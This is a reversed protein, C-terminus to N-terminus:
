ATPGVGASAGRARLYEGKDIIKMSLMASIKMFAHHM